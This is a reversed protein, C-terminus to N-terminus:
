FYNGPLQGLKTDIVGRSIFNHDRSFPYEVLFPGTKRGKKVSTLIVDHFRGNNEKTRGLVSRWIQVTM